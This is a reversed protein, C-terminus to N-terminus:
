AAPDQNLIEVLSDYLKPYLMKLQVPKEFFIEISEAWFEQFNKLAYDSYLDNGPLAEQQFVKNGYDNFEDFTDRFNADVNEETVFNQYYLAHSLEHLGVNQGDSGDEFGKLFHKWSLNITHGNVNGELIRITPSVALFEEPYVHIFKFNPLLYRRLGLTLQIAAASILIPMEKYAITDHVKFIKDAIFLQTRDIFIKKQLVSLKKYYPFRKNLVAALEVDTFNLQDGYYTLYSNTEREKPDEISNNDGNDDKNSLMKARIIIVIVVFVIFFIPTLASDDKSTNKEAYPGQMQQKLSSYVAYLSDMGPPVEGKNLYISTDKGGPTIFNIENNDNGSYIHYTTDFPM